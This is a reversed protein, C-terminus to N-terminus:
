HKMRGMEYDERRDMSNHVWIGPDETDESPKCWCSPDAEHDRLDGVPVIHFHMTDDPEYVMASVWNFEM